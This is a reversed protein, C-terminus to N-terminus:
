RQLVLRGDSIHVSGLRSLVNMGLLSHQLAGPQAVFADIDDVEINAIRLANVHVKAYATMGNATSVGYRFDVPALNFGLTDADESKLALFTAGTDVIVHLLQGDIEIDTEYNGARDPAIEITDLSGSNAPASAAAEQRPAPAAAASAAPRANPLSLRSTLGMSFLLTGAVVFVLCTLAFRLM